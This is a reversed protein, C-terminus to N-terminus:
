QPPRPRLVKGTATRELEEVIEISRPRKYGALNERIWAVFADEDHDIGPRLVVRACVRQGWEDDPTGFVVVEEVDSHEALVAEVESPYVNVGGSIILDNRRGVLFLYGDEDVYGADGVTFASGLWAAETKEDDGWYRFREAAPDDIWVQGTTGADVEIGDDDTIVIRAGERPRGVSGPKTRWEDASIRALHGETSGYFEWVHTESLLALLREKTAPRIPAGAHVLARLSSLDHRSLAATGLALLREIHTPVMFTTTAGFLEIAALTEEPDFRRQLAVTGGAELTRLSYRHPASHSLPSCVLHVDGQRLDWYRRFDVSREVALTEDYPEVWVGKPSGTTGSTYHMPRGLAHDALEHPEAESLIREYASGLSVIRELGEIPDIRMDTFLWRAGSDEILYEIERRAALANVPVPVVGCRLAGTSVELSDPSNTALIAIRDGKGLGSEAFAGALARHREDLERFTM